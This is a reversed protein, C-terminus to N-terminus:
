AFLYSPKPHPDHWIAFHRGTSQVMSASVPNVNSLLVPATEADAEVRVTYIALVDPRDLFFTIRRFGEPECQTCYTGRSRYLGSLATNAEPDCLTVTEVTFPRDPVNLITLSKEDLRDDDLALPRGAADAKPNPRLRLKSKVRTAKPDLAFDLEVTDVLYNPPAYDKLLKPQRTSQDM